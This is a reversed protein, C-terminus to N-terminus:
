QSRDPKKKSADGALKRRGKRAKEEEKPVIEQEKALQESELRAIEREEHGMANESAKVPPSVRDELDKSTAMTEQQGINNIHAKSLELLVKSLKERLEAVRDELDVTWEQDELAQRLRLLEERRQQIDVRREQTKKRATGILCRGIVRRLEADPNRKVNYDHQDLYIWAGLAKSSIDISEHMTRTLPTDRSCFCIVPKEANKPIDRCHAMLEFMRSEDFHVGVVILDFDQQKLRAVAETMTSAITLEHEKALLRELFAVGDTTDAILIRAM